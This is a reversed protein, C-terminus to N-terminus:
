KHTHRGCSVQQLRTFGDRSAFTVQHGMSVAVFMALLVILAILMALLVIRAICLRSGRLLCAPLFKTRPDILRQDVNSVDQMEVLFVILMIHGVQTGIPHEGPITRM